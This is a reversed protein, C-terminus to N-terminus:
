VDCYVYLGKPTQPPPPRGAGRSGIRRWLCLKIKESWSWVKLSSFCIGAVRKCFRSSQPNFILSSRRYLAYKSPYSICVEIVVLINLTLCIGAVKKCFISSKPNFILSSIRYLNYKSPYSICVTCAQMTHTINMVNLSPSETLSSCHVFRRKCEHTFLQFITKCAERAAKINDQARALLDPVTKSSYLPVRRVQLCCIWTKTHPSLHM